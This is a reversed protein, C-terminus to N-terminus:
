VVKPARVPWALTRARTHTEFDDFRVKIAITRAAYGEGALRAAVHRALEAVESRVQAPEEVDEGFTSENGISRPPGTWPQVPAADLGQAVRRFWPGADGLAARLREEPLTALHAITEIGALRLREDTKPGIGPIRRAPLPALIQAAVSPGVISVGGPKRLDSAIKATVKGQAAGVSCSLGTAQLVAAQIARCHAELGAEDAARDTADLYAEDMGAVELARTFRELTAMVQQSVHHYHAFDPWLYIGQPCRQWAQSIPMASRVGFKRAEYSASTVVGRGKGGQPDAGVIVPLGRLEPRRAQEASAYFADMDVHLVVQAWGEM